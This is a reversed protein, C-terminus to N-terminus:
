RILRHRPDLPHRQPNVGSPAVADDRKAPLVLTRILGFHLRGASGALRVALPRGSRERPLRRMVNTSVVPMTARSGTSARAPPM